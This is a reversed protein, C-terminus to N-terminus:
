LFKIELAKKFLFLCVSLFFIKYSQSEYNLPFKNKVGKFSSWSKKFEVSNCLLPSPHDPHASHKSLDLAAVVPTM